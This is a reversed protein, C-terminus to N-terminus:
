ESTNDRTSRGRRSTGEDILAKPSQANGPQTDDGRLKRESVLEEAYDIRLWWPEAKFASSRRGGKRRDLRAPFPLQQRRRDSGERRDNFITKKDDTVDEGSAIM